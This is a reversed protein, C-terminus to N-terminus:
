LIQIGPETQIFSPHYHKWETSALGDQPMRVQLNVTADLSCFGQIVIFKFVLIYSQLCLLAM